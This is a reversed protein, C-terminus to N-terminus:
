FESLEFNFKCDSKELWKERWMKARFLLFEMPSAISARACVCFVTWKMPNKILEDYIKARVWFIAEPESREVKFSEKITLKM